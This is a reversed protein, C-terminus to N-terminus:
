HAQSALEYIAEGNSFIGVCVYEQAGVEKFATRMWSAINETEQQYQDEFMVHLEDLEDDEIPYDADSDDEEVYLQTGSYYGPLLTVKHYRLGENFDEIAPEVVDKYFMQCGFDDFEYNGDEDEYAFMESDDFVILPFDKQTRFNPTSM